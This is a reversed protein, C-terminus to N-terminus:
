SQCSCIDRSTSSWDLCLDRGDTCHLQEQGEWETDLGGLSQMVDIVLSSNAMRTRWILLITCYISQTDHETMPVPIETVLKKKILTANGQIFM